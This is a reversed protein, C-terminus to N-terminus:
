LYTWPLASCLDVNVKVKDQMM